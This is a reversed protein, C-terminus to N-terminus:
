MFEISTRLSEMNIIENDLSNIQKLEWEIFYKDKSISFCEIKSYAKERDTKLSEIAEDVIKLVDDLKVYGFMNM